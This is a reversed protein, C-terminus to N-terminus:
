AQLVIQTANCMHFTSNLYINGRRRIIIIHWLFTSESSSQSPKPNLKSCTQNIYIFGKTIYAQWICALRSIINVVPQYHCDIFSYPRSGHDTQGSYWNYFIVANSWILSAITTSLQQLTMWNFFDTKGNTLVAAYFIASVYESSMKKPNGHIWRHQLGFEDMFVRLASVCGLCHQEAFHM